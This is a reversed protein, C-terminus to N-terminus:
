KEGEVQDHTSKTSLQVSVTRFLSRCLSTWNLSCIRWSASNINIRSRTVNIPVVYYGDELQIDTDTNEVEVLEDIRNQLFTLWQEGYQEMLSENSMNSKIATAADQAAQYSDETYKSADLSEIEEIKEELREKITPESAFGNISFASLILSFLLLFALSKKIKRM